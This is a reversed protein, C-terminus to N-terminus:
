CATASIITSCSISRSRRRFGRAALAGGIFLRLPLGGPVDGIVGCGTIMLATGLDPQLM